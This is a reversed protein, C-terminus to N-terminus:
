QIYYKNFNPVWIPKLSNKDINHVSLDILQNFQKIVYQSGFNYSGSLNKYKINQLMLADYFNAWQGNFEKSKNMRNLFSKDSLKFQNDLAHLYPYLPDTPRYLINRFNGFFIAFRIISGNFYKGNQDSIVKDFLNRKLYNSTWSGNKIASNYDTFYYYPGFTNYSAAKIGFAMTFPTLEAPQGLFAVSPIEIIDNKHKLYIIYPNSLFLKTVSSHIPFNLVFKKNCIEDILSWWLQTNRFTIGNSDAVIPFNHNYFFYISSNLTIFGIPTCKYNLIKSALNNASNTISSSNNHISKNFPIFPFVLLDSTKKNSKPYKFLLYRLFPKIINHSKSDFTINFICLSIHIFGTTPDISHLNTNIKSSLDYSFETIKHLTKNYIM